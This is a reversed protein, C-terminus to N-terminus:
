KVENLFTVAILTCIYMAHRTSPKCKCMSALMIGDTFQITGHYQTQTKVIICVYIVVRWDPNQGLKEVIKKVIMTHFEDSIIQWCIKRVPVAYTISFSLKVPTFASM